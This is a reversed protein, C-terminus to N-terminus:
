GLGQSARRKAQVLLCAPCGQLGAEEAHFEAGCLSSRREALLGDYAQDVYSFNYVPHGQSDEDYVGMDDLFIAHFRVFEMETAQKVQRLDNRYSERLSLSARGSGFMHEWFHPFPHAPASADIVLIDSPKASTQAGAGGTFVLIASLVLFLVSSNRRFMRKIM